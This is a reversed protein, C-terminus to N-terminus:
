DQNPGTKIIKASVFSGSKADIYIADHGFEVKYCLVAHYPASTLSRSKALRELPVAYGLAPKSRSYDKVPWTDRRVSRCYASYVRAAKQIASSSSLKVQHSDIVTDCRHRFTILEGTDLCISAVAANPYTFFPYGYPKEAYVVTLTGGQSGGPASSSNSIRNSRRELRETVGLSRILTDAYAIAESTSKFRPPNSKTRKKATYGGFTGNDIGILTGKKSDIKATFASKVYIEWVTRGNVFRDLRAVCDPRSNARLLGAIIGYGIAIKAAETHSIDQPLRKLSGPSLRINGDDSFSLGAFITISAAVLCILFTRRNSVFKATRM